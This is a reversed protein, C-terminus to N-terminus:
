KFLTTIIGAYFNPMLLVSVAFALSLIVALSLITFYKAKNQVFLGGLGLVIYTFFLIISVVPVAVENSVTAIVSERSADLLESITINYM